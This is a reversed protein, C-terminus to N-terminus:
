IGGRRNKNREVLVYDYYRDNLDRDLKGYIKAM